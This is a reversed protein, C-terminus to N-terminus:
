VLSELVPDNQFVWQVFYGQLFDKPNIQSQLIPGKLNGELLMRGCELMPAATTLQIAKLYYSGVKMGRITNSKELMHIRQDADLGSVSVYYLIQDDDVIPIQGLMKRLLQQEKDESPTILDLQERVWNYHGPYRITKYDLNRVKGEFFDPLDAAGGSTFDDEYTVGNIIITSTESLAPVKTKHSNRIVFADRVYETAVGIPSWTFGYFHPSQANKTLAGVKMRIDQVYAGPHRGLFDNYMQHALVNIFGPAMGSQLVFGTEANQAMAIIEQTEQVHETLNVYHLKHKLALRVLNPAESGPLCDLLLDASSFIYDMESSTEKTDLLFPQINTFSSAGNKVWEAVKCALELRCDGIFIETDLETQEALMLAAASGIGGAGAIIIKHKVYM